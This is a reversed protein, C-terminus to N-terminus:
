RTPATIPTPWRARATWSSARPGSRARRASTPSPRRPRTRPPRRRPASRRSSSWRWAGWRAQSENGRRRPRICPEEEPGADERAVAPGHGGAPLERHHRRDRHDRRRLAATGDHRLVVQRRHGPPDRHLGQPDKVIGKLAVEQILFGEMGPQRTKPGPRRGGAEAPQRLPRAPGAPQLQLRGARSSRRSSHLEASTTPRRRETPAPSPSAAPPAPAQAAVPPSWSPWPWSLSCPRRMMPGRSRTTMPASGSARRRPPAAARGRLRLHHGRLHRRHHQLGDAGVSGHDQHNGINVLRSLRSIRDFFLASTTTPARSTSTSRASRTSSRPPWRRRPHVEPHAPQVARGPYQVKRMLDPTEKEPPLIRKLTELKAELLQVERQFEQLKNATVELARIEKQLQELRREEDEREELADSYWFYWFLGGILAALFVSVGLQGALPLRTLANDAMDGEERGAGAAAPRAAAGPGRGGRGRGGAQGGGRPEQVPQVPRLDRHQQRETSSVLDVTPFWGSRQLASIFDAVSTLGNSQGKFRVTARTQDLDTLWVFDPLAKSIEDLMHVPGKQEAQLREILDVKRQFTAGQGPLRGGPGQDGAARAAAERRRRHQRDLEKLQASKFWWLAPASSPPAARSSRWSSTPRSRERPRPCAAAESGRGEEKKTPRSPARALNIRIM